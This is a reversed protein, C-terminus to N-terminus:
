NKLNKNLHLYNPMTYMGSFDPRSLVSSKTSYANVLSTHIHQEAVYANGINFWPSSHCVQEHDLEILLLM